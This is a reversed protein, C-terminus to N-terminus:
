ERYLNNWTFTKNVMKYFKNNHSLFVKSLKTLVTNDIEPHPRGKSGSLCRKKTKTQICYFGRTENYVFASKPIGHKVGLFSEVKYVEPYPDQILRDGDVIYMQNLSFYELWNKLYVDYFSRQIPKSYTDVNGDKKLILDEISKTEHSKYMLQLQDSICRSVPDRVILLLKISANMAQVKAPVSLDNFYAPSKEITLQDSFSSPMQKKYWEYGFEYNEPNDFFHIEYPATQIDPHLKLYTLLARTGAKRVGIVICQPLRRKTYKYNYYNSNCVHSQSYCTFLLGVLALILICFCAIIRRPTCCKSWISAQLNTNLPTYKVDNHNM